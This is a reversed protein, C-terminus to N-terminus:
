KKAFFGEFAGSIQPAIEPKKTAAAPKFRAFVRFDGGFVTDPIGGLDTKLRRKFVAKWGPWFDL